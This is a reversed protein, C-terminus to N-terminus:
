QRSEKAKTTTADVIEESIEPFCEKFNVAEKESLRFGKSAMFGLMYCIWEDRNM